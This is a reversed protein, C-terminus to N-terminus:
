VNQLICPCCVEVWDVEFIGLCEGDLAVELVGFTGSCWMICISGARSHAGSRMERIPLQVGREDSQYTREMNIRRFVLFVLRNQIGQITISNRRTQCSVWLRELTTKPHSIQPSQLLPHPPTLLPRLIKLNSATPAHSFTKSNALGFM